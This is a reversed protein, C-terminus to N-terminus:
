DLVLLPIDSHLTLHRTLRGESAADGKLHTKPMIALMYIDYKEIYERIGKEIDDSEAFSHHSYFMELFYQLTNENSEDDESYGAIVKETHVTLVHVRAKFKRSVELLVYLPGRDAIREKGLTLIITELRFKTAKEPVVLVPIDAEQVFRSTRSAIDEEGAEVGKTGMIVFGIQLEKQMNLISPILKGKKIITSIPPNLPNDYKSVVETFRGSIEHEDEDSGAIHLLHLRMDPDDYAFKVAYELANLSVKTFDFPILINKM